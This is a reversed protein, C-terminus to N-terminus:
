ITTVRTKHFHIITRNRSYIREIIESPQLYFKQLRMKYRLTIHSHNLAYDSGEYLAFGLNHQITIEDTFREMKKHYQPFAYKIGTFIMGIGTKHSYHLIHGLEHGIWGVISNFSLESIQLSTKLADPKQILIIYKRKDKRKFISSVTPKSTMTSKLYGYKFEIAVDKLEPYFSLAVLCEIELEAPIIKNQGFEKEIEDLQRVYYDRNLYFEEFHNQGQSCNFQLLIFLVASLKKLSQLRFIKNGMDGTKKFIHKGFFLALTM